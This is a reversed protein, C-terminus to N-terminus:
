KYFGHADTLYHVFYHKCRDVVGIDYLIHCIMAM